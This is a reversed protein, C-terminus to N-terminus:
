EKENNDSASRARAQAKRRAMNAKLAAKLRDERTKEAGAAAKRPRADKPSVATKPPMADDTM